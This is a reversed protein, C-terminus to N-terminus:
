RWANNNTTVARMWEARQKTLSDEYPTKNCRTFIGWSARSQSIYCIHLHTSSQARSTCTPIGLWSKLHAPHLRQLRTYLTQM